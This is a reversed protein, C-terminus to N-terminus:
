KGDQLDKINILLNKINELIDEGKLGKTLLTLYPKSSANFMIKRRYNDMLKNIISLDMFSDNIYHFIVSDNKQAISSFGCKRALFKIHAIMLLNSVYKPINGYRDILEDEIETIDEQSGISAIKKYMDIKQNEVGIYDNDIYASINIDITIEQNNIDPSEGKIEMVAEDLLRCYMDYGVSEMQGSQQAGLLNGAGRIELDRMAIKFGSGLDTFERIARLRKEAIESLIKDKKYTIYAYALRNSRGVRGRLQYLQALGM